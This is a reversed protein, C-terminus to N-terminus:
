NRQVQDENGGECDIAFHVPCTRCDGAPRVNILSYTVVKRVDRSALAIVQTSTRSNALGVICQVASRLSTLSSGSCSCM